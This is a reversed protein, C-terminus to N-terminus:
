ASDGALTETPDVAADPVKEIAAVAPQLQVAVLPAGHSLMVLAALPVPLPLTAYLTAAFGL